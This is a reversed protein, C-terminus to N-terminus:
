QNCIPASMPKSLRMHDLSRSDCMRRLIICARNDSRSNSSQSYYVSSTEESQWHRKTSLVILNLTVHDRIRMAGFVRRGECCDHLIIRRRFNETLKALAGRSESIVATDVVESIKQLVLELQRLPNESIGEAVLLAQGIKWRSRWPM